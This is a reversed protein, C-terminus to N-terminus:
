RSWNSATFFSYLFRYKNVATQINKEKNLSLTVVKM